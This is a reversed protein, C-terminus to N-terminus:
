TSNEKFKPTEYTCYLALWLNLCQYLVYVIEMVLYIVNLIENYVGCIQPFYVVYSKRTLEIM